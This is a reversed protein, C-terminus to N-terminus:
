RRKELTQLTYGAAGALEEYLLASFELHRQWPGSASSLRSELEAAPPFLFGAADKVPSEAIAKNVEDLRALLREREREGGDAAGRALASRALKGARGAEDRIAELGHVLEDLAVGYREARVKQEEPANFERDAREFASHLIADIEDRRSPLALLEEPGASFLGRISLGASSLSYNKLGREQSIRNEFWAAYLSLRKDTRVSGGSASVAPFPGASELSLISRTEAPVIRTSLAHASEEFLAGKFHTKLGPYALDLGAIWIASPDLLRAFDWATTAVSGGAGLTGKAGTRNEVFRGLPFLSRCLLVRGAFERLVSPYVASEAVLCSAAGRGLHHLHRANWFQPDVAVTFDSGVGRSLLFRLSTDVAVVLCRERIAALYPGTEDLSPGAAALFVPIGSGSLCGSLFGVGCVDRIAHLNAALNRTWRKGFRRLTAANVEDRAAWSLGRREADGYWARDEDSLSVLARNVLVRPKGQVGAQELAALAGTIGGSDGGSVFIVNDAALLGRLDRHELALRLLEPRREVIILPVSAGSIELAAEATYGMGFGLVVAAGYAGGSLATEAQRRGEKRPDRLSNLHLGNIVLAPDGSAAQEVCSDATGDASPLSELRRALEPYRLALAAANEEWFDAGPGKSGRPVTSDDM